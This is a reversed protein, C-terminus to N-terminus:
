VGLHLEDAPIGAQHFVEGAPFGPKLLRYREYFATRVKEAGRFLEEMSSYTSRIRRYSLRGGREEAFLCTVTGGAKEYGKVGSRGAGRARAEVLIYIIRSGVEGSFSLMLSFGCVGFKQYIRREMPYHRLTALGVLNPDNLLKVIEDAIRNLTMGAEVGLGALLSFIHVIPAPINM